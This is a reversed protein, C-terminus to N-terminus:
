YFYIRFYQKNERNKIEKVQKKLLLHHKKIECRVNQDNTEALIDEDEADADEEIVSSPDISVVREEVVHLEEPAEQEEEEIDEEEDDIKEFTVSVENNEDENSM